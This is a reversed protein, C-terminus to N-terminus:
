TQILTGSAYYADAALYAPHSLNLSQRMVAMKDLLTTKQTKPFILSEHIRSVLPIALFYSFRGALSSCM